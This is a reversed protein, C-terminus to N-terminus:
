QDADHHVKDTKNGIGCRLGFKCCLSLLLLFGTRDQEIDHSEQILEGDSGVCDDLYFQIVASPNFLSDLVRHLM